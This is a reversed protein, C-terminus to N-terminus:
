KTVIVEKKDNTLQTLLSTQKLIFGVIVINRFNLNENTLAM